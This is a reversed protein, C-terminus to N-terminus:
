RSSSSSGTWRLRKWWRKKEEEEEKKGGEERREVEVARLGLGEMEGGPGVYPAGSLSEGRRHGRHRRAAAAAREGEAVPLSATSEALLNVGGERTGYSPHFASHPSHQTPVAPSSQCSPFSPLTATRSRRSHPPHPHSPRIEFGPSAAGLGISFGRPRYPLPEDDDSASSEEEEETDLQLGEPEAIWSSAGSRVDEGEGGEEKREAEGKKGEATNVSVVWVGALLVACGLSVLGIQMRSLADVQKYYTLGSAISTTNYFCFALPCVLTPGVLRLARNLYSLQFLETLLLTLIILWPFLHGFQNGRGTLTLILLEIGTKTFLLCLGSLTGSTAGYAVALWVRAREFRALVVSPPEFSSASSAELDLSLSPARSRPKSAISPSRFRAHKASGKQSASLLPQRENPEFHEEEQQEEPEDRHVEPSDTWEGDHRLREVDGAAAGGLGAGGGTFPESWRRNNRVRRKQKKEKRGAGMRVPFPKPTGPPLRELQKKLRWECVHAVLLISFLSFALLSVFLVFPPRRYLAVLEPLTHTVEPVVGFIGILVAGGAILFTGVVLHLSFEDGLIVRAFLANWLLSCAGLPGLVVIPLAGIQFLTGFVNSLIFIAFGGLWLPRQWDRKREPPPLRENSVHSLRQITLGLSQVFSAVLGVIVGMAVSIHPGDDAM